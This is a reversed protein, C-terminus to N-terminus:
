FWINRALKDINRNKIEQLYKGMEYKKKAKYKKIKNGVLNEIRKINKKIKKEDFVEATPFLPGVRTYIYKYIYGTHKSWIPM